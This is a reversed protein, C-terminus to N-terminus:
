SDYIIIISKFFSILVIRICKYFCWISLIYITWICKFFFTHKLNIKNYLNGTRNYSLIRLTRNHAQEGTEYRQELAQVFITKTWTIEDEANIAKM